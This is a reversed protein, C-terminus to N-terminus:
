RLMMWCRQGNMWDIEAPLRLFVVEGQWVLAENDGAEAFRERLFDIHM